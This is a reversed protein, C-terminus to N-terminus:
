DTKMTELVRVSDIDCTIADLVGIQLIKLVFRAVVTRERQSRTMYASRRCFPQRQGSSPIADRRERRLHTSIFVENTYRSITIAQM